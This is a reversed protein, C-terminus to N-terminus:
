GIGAQIENNGRYSESSIGFSTYVFDQIVPLINTLIKILKRQVGVSEQVISRIEALQRYYYSQLDIINCAYWLSTNKFFIHSIILFLM